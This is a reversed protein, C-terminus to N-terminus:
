VGKCMFKAFDTKTADSFSRSIPVESENELIYKNRYLEKVNKMNVIFSKHCRTFDSNKLREFLHEM